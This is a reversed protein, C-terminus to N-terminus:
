VGAKAPTVSFYPKQSMLKCSSKVFEWMTMGAGANALVPERQFGSRTQLDCFVGVSQNTVLFSFQSCPM